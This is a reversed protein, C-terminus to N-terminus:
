KFKFDLFLIAGQNMLSKSSHGMKCATMLTYDACVSVKIGVACTSILTTLFAATINTYGFGLETLGDGFQNRVGEM